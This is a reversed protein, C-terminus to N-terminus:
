DKRNCYNQRRSKIEDIRLIDNRLGGKIKIYNQTNLEKGNLLM